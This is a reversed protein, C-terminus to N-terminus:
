KSEGFVIGRWEWGEPVQHLAFQINTYGQMEKWGHTNIYLLKEGGQVAKQFETQNVWSVEKDRNKQLHEILSERPVFEYESEWWGVYTDLISLNEGLIKPNFDKLALTITQALAMPDAQTWTRKGGSTLWALKSAVMAQYTTQAEDDGIQNGYDRTLKELWFRARGNNGTDCFFNGLALLLSAPSVDPNGGPKDTLIKELISEAQTANGSHLTEFFLSELDPPEPTGSASEQAIAPGAMLFATLISLNAIQALVTRSLWHLRKM